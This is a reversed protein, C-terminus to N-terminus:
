MARALWVRTLAGTWGERVLFVPRRARTAPVRHEAWSLLRRCPLWKAVTPDKIRSVRARGAFGRGLGAVM